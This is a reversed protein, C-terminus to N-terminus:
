VDVFILAGCHTEVLALNRANEEELIALVNIRRNSCNRFRAQDLLDLSKQPSGPEHGMTGMSQLRTFTDLLEIATPCGQAAVPPRMTVVNALSIARRSAGNTRILM